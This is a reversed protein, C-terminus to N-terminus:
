QATNTEFPAMKLVIEQYSREGINRIRRLENSQLAAIDQATKIGARYLAYWTHLTFGMDDISVDAQDREYINETDRERFHVGHEEMKSVIEEFSKTGLNRSRKVQEPGASVIDGMKRYGARYLANYSRVSLQMDELTMLLASTNTVVANEATKQAEMENQCRAYGEQIGDEFSKKAKADHYAIMGQALMQKRLPHRLRRLTRALIQRIRERNVGYVDGIAELTQKERYRLEVIGQERESLSALLYKLTGDLDPPTPLDTPFIERLLNEPYEYAKYILM